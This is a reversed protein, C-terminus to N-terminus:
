GHAPEASLKDVFLVETFGLGVFLSRLSQRASERAREQLGKDGAAEAEFANRAHEFLQATQKSDLNSGIIETEAPQLEVQTQVRPLVVEVTRGSVRLSGEDLKRLDVGLHAVAFVIARGQPPRVSYSAWQALAGWVTSQERPDPSFDIKKYLSVDLTELRAVERVKLILAPADPLKAERHTFHWVVGAGLAFALLLAAAALVNRM